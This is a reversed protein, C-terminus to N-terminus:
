GKAVEAARRAGDYDADTVVEYGEHNYIKIAEAGAETKAIEIFAEQIAKKFGESMEPNVTSVSITDNFIPETVGIVDTETWISETRKWETM